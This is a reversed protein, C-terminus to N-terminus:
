RRVRRKHSRGFMYNLLVKRTELVGGMGGFHAVPSGTKHWNFGRMREVYRRINSENCIHAKRERCLRIYDLLLLNISYVGSARLILYERYKKESFAPKNMREMARWYKLLVKKKNKMPIKVFLEDTFLPRLSSVFSNLQIPKNQSRQGSINIKMYFPSLDLANFNLAIEAADARWNERNVLPVGKMGVRKICYQLADKLSANIRKQTKNVMFFILREIEAENITTGNSHNIIKVAAQSDILTVPLEYDVLNLYSNKDSQYGRRILNVDSFVKELGAVRHQGDIIWIAGRRMPIEIMGFDNTWSPLPLPVFKVGERISVFLGPMVAVPCDILYQYVENVKDEYLERQYGSLSEEEFGFVAYLRLLDETGIKGTYLTVKKQKLKLVPLRIKEMKNKPDLTATYIKGESSENLKEAFFLNPDNWCSNCVYGRKTKHYNDAIRFGCCTCVPM